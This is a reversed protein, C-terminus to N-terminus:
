RKPAGRQDEGGGEDAATGIKGFLLALEDEAGRAVRPPAEVAGMVTEVLVPDRDARRPLLEVRPVQLGCAGLRGHHKVQM